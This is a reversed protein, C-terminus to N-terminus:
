MAGNIMNDSNHSSVLPYASDHVRLTIQRRAVTRCYALPSYCYCLIPKFRDGTGAHPLMRFRLARTGTGCLMGPNTGAVVNTGDHAWAVPRPQSSSHVMLTKFISAFVCRSKLTSERAACTRTQPHPGIVLSIFAFSTARSSPDSYQPKQQEDNNNMTINPSVLCRSYTHPSGYEPQVLSPSRDGM